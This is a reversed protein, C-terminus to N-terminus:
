ADRCLYERLSAVVSEHDERETLGAVAIAGVVGVSMLRVPFAGGALVYNAPDLGYGPSLTRDSSRQELAMRYSSKHFMKVVNIKRRAWNSNSGVSGELAAYFLPRDWLCIDIVIGAGATVARNRIHSGIEFAVEEDFRDFVFKQEQRIVNALEDERCPVKELLNTTM